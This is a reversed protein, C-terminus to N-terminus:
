PDRGNHPGPQSSLKRRRGDVAAKQLAEAIGTPFMGQPRVEHAKGATKVVSLLTSVCGEGGRQPGKKTAAM